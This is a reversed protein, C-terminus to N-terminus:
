PMETVERQVAHLSVTFDTIGDGPLLANLVNSLMFDTDYTGSIKWHEQEGEENTQGYGVPESVKFRNRPNSGKGLATLALSKAAACYRTMEDSDCEGVPVHMALYRASANLRGQFLSVEYFVRGFDVVIALLMLLFPLVISVEVLAIGRQQHRNPLIKRSM